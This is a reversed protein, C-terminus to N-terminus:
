GYNYMEIILMLLEKLFLDLEKLKVRNLINYYYKHNKGDQM